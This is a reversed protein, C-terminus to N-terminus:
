AMLNSLHCCGATLCLSLNETDSAKRKNQQPQNTLAGLYSSKIGVIVLDIMLTMMANM